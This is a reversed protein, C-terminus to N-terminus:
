VYIPSRLLAVAGNLLSAAGAAAAAATATAVFHLRRFAAHVPHANTMRYQRCHRATPRQAHLFVNVYDEAGSVHSRVIGDIVSNCRADASDGGGSCSVVIGFVDDACLEVM